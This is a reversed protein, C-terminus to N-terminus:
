REGGLADHVVPMRPALAVTTGASVTLLSATLLSATLLSATLAAAIILRRM